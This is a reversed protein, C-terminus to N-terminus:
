NNQFSTLSKKPLVRSGPVEVASFNLIIGAITFTSTIAQFIHEKFPFVYIFIKRDKYKCKYINCILRFLEYNHKVTTCCQFSTAIKKNNTQKPPNKKAKKTITTKTQTILCVLFWPSQFNVTLLFYEKEPYKLM